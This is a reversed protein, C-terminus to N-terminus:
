STLLMQGNQLLNENFFHLASKVLFIRLLSFFADSETKKTVVIMLIIEVFDDSNMGHWCLQTVVSLECDRVGNTLVITKKRTIVMGGLILDTSYWSVVLKSQPPRTM